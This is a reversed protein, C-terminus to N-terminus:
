ATGKYPDRGWVTARIGLNTPRPVLGTNDRENATRTPGTRTRHCSALTKEGLRVHLSGCCWWELRLYSCAIFLFNQSLTLSISNTEVVGSRKAVM